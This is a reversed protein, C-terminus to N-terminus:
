SQGASASEAKSAPAQVKAKIYGPVERVAFGTLASIISGAISLFVTNAYRSIWSESAPASALTTPEGQWNLSVDGRRAMVTLNRESKAAFDGSISEEAVSGEDTYVQVRISHTGSTVPVVQSLSGQVSDNFLGFRKRMYGTLKGSYAQKGDVWVAIQASRFSHQVKLHLSANKEPSLATHLAMLLAAVAFLGLVVWAKTPVRVALGISHRWFNAVSTRIKERNSLFMPREIKAGHEDPPTTVLTHRASAKESAPRRVGHAPNRDGTKGMSYDPNAQM